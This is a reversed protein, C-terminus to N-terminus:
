GPRPPQQRTAMAARVAAEVRPNQEMFKLVDAADLVLLECPQRAIVTANRKTRGLVAMEGFFDGQHLHVSRDPLVVEVEGNAIFFMSEAEDGKRIIVADRPLKRAKLMSALESIAAADLTSFLPVRAVMSYSIIFDRRRIEALFGTAIIAVPLAFFILGAVIVGGTAIKGLPTVPVVDGYGVTALTVVAWYMAAPVSGFRDPQAEHEILHMLTGAVLLMGLGIVGSAGLPRWESVLVRGVTALAPSYRALRFFRIVQLMLITEHRQPAVLLLVFPLVGLLDLILMPQVALALRSRWRGLTCLLPDEVATWLRLLYEITFFTGFGYESIRLERQWGPDLSPETAVIACAISALIVVISLRDFALAIGDPKSGPEVIDYAIRRLSGRM